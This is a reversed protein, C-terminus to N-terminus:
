PSWVVAKREKNKFNRGKLINKTKNKNKCKAHDCGDNRVEEEDGQNQDMVALNQNIQVTM